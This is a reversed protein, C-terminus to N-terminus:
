RGAEGATPEGRELPARRVPWDYWEFARLVPEADFTWFILGDLHGDGTDFMIGAGLTASIRRVGVV